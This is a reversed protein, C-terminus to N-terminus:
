RPVATGVAIPEDEEEFREMQPTASPSEEPENDKWNPSRDVATGVAVPEREEDKNEQTDQRGASEVNKAQTKEEVPLQKVPSPKSVKVQKLRMTFRFGNTINKDHESDIGEIVMKDIYNRGVYLHPEKDRRKKQLKNFVDGAGEGTYKGRVQLRDPENRVHDTVEEGDEIPQDTSYNGFSPNEETVFLEIDGYRAM